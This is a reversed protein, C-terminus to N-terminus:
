RVPGLSQSWDLVQAQCEPVAGLVKPLLVELGVKDVLPVIPPKSTGSPLFDSIPMVCQSKPHTRKLQYSSAHFTTMETGPRWIRKLKGPPIIGRSWLRLCPQSGFFFSLLPGPHSECVWNPRFLKHDPDRFIELLM